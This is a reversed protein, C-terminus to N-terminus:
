PDSGKQPSGIRQIHGSDQLSRLKRQITRSSSSLAVALDVTSIEPTALQLQLIEEAMEEAVSPFTLTFFGDDDVQAAPANGAALSQQIRLGNEM